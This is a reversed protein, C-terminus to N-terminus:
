KQLEPLTMLSKYVKDANPFDPDLALCKKINELASSFDNSQFHIASLRFYTEPDRDNYNLSQNLFNIAREYSKAEYAVIGLNKSTYGDPYRRHMKVLVRGATNYNQRSMLKDAAYIYLNKNYPQEEILVNLERYFGNFNGRRFYFEAAQKHADEWSIKNRVVAMALTDALSNLEFESLIQLVSSHKVFPYSNLLVKIQISAYASDLDTYPLERSLYSDVATRGVNSAKGPIYKHKVIENIYLDAIMKHGKIVPHLHDVFLEHGPIDDSSNKRFLSDIKIIPSKYQDAISYIVENMKEPARFRLVDFEKAEILSEYAETFNGERLKELGRSFSSDAENNDDIINELPPQMLNSTLQGAIVPVGYERCKRYIYDLNDRFNEIGNSYEDSNLRVINDGVMAEMLTKSSSKEGSSFIGAISSIFESLLQYIKLERLELIFQATSSSLSAIDDSASGFAGYYENHGAYILILDPSQDLVDGIIDRMFHSNMAAIGLNVVEFKKDPYLVELKRKIFGAFSVNPIYPYGAASSGGLIFIRYSDNQKNKDFGDKVPSPVAVSRSFYKKPLDPNLILLNDFQRSLTVFPTYDIGYNIFRLGFETLM